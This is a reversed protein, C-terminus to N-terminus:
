KVSWKRQKARGEEDNVDGVDGMDRRVCDGGGEAVM